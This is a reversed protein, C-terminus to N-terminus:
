PFLVVGRSMSVLSLLVFCSSHTSAAGVGVGEDIWNVRVGVVVGVVVECLRHASGAGSGVGVGDEIEM